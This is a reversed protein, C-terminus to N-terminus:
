CIHALESQSCRERGGNAPLEHINEFVSCDSIAAAYRKQCGDM